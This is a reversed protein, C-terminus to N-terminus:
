KPGSIHAIELTLCPWQQQWHGCVLVSKSDFVSDVASTTQGLGHWVCLVSACGRLREGAMSRSSGGDNGRQKPQTRYNAVCRQSQENNGRCHSTTTSHLCCAEYIGLGRSDTGFKLEAEGCHSWGWWAEGGLCLRWLKVKKGRKSGTKIHVAILLSFNRITSANVIGNNLTSTQTCRVHKPDKLTQHFHPKVVTKKRRRYSRCTYIKWPWVRLKWKCLPIRQMRNPMYHM